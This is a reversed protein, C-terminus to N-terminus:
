ERNEDPEELESKTRARKGNDESLKGRIELLKKRRRRRVAFVPVAIVALVLLVPLLAAAAVVIWQFIVSLIAASGHLAEAARKTLPGGDQAGIVAASGIKQSLRLEVTSYSVNQDLYRMRGKIREIEEQVKGLENSFALLEDTKTAKEMFAILRSEVVQKAKLRAALDVYEESVDQGRVNKQSTSHIKELQTLLSTFGGAPVKIVFNGYKEYATENQDFQLVYGGAQKVAEEIKGSAEEYQEVQMTLSAQYIIKRDLANVDAAANGDFSDAPRAGSETQAAGAQDASAMSTAGAAPAASKADAASSQRVALSETSAASKNSDAAGCGSVAAALVLAAAWCPLRLRWATGKKSSRKAGSGDWQM